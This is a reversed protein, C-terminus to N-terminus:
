LKGKPRDNQEEKVAVIARLTRIEWAQNSIRKMARLLLALLILSLVSLLVIIWLM